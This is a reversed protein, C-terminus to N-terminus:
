RASVALSLRDKGTKKVSYMLQDAERLLEEFSAPATEAVIAGISFTVQWQKEQMADVLAARLKELVHHAAAGDTEPLLIAFEDGGLRAIVDTVRTHSRLVTAVAILLRDGEAHGLTDNVAKFNDLDVYGLALPRKYRRSRRVEDQGAEYFARRNRVGTLFDARAVEHLARTQAKVRIQLSGAWAFAILTIMIAVGLAEFTHQLNWFPPAQVVAVDAPTRLEIEFSRPERSEDARVSCVGTVDLMSGAALAGLSRNELRARFVAHGDRLLLLESGSAPVREILQGRLRVLLADYPASQFMNANREIVRSAQVAVARPQKAHGGVRFVSSLLVPSYQGTSAFGAVEVSTGPPVATAQETEVYVGDDGNQIYLFRGPSVYTVVGEVKVRHRPTSVTSFQLTAAIPQTARAFPDAPAAREIHVDSLDNVFLRLGIFQRRENFNTGCVGRVTVEADVLTSPDRIAFNHVRASISGGGVDINLFLVPRGWSPAINASRIIGRVAIWQADKQGMAIEDFRLLPPAPLAQHGVVRVQDSIIVPAFLGPASKGDIEVEDGPHVDAADLRDVSIGSTADQFFFSNKWGSLNTVIGRVHVPQTLGAQAATLTRVDRASRLIPLAIVLIAVLM